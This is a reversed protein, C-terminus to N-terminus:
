AVEPSPEAILDPYQWRDFRKVFNRVADTTPVGVVLAWRGDDTQRYIGVGGALTKVTLRPDIANVVGEIARTVVCRTPWGCNGKVGYRRLTEAVEDPTDGLAGIARAVAEGVQEKITETV